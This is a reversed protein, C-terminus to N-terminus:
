EDEGESRRRKKHNMVWSHGSGDLYKCCICALDNVPLTLALVRQLSPRIHTEWERQAAELVFYVHAHDSSTSELSSAALLPNSGVVNLAHLSGISETAIGYETILRTLVAGWGCAVLLSVVSDGEGDILTLDGGPQLTLHICEYTHSTYKHAASRLLPTSGDPGRVNVDAGLEIFRRPVWSDMIRSERTTLDPV